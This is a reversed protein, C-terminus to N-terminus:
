SIKYLGHVGAHTSYNMNQVDMRNYSLCTLKKVERTTTDKYLIRDHWGIGAELGAPDYFCTSDIPKDNGSGRCSEKRHRLLKWTPLFNPGIDGLGELFGELPYKAKYAAFEDAKQLELIKTSTLIKKDLVDLMEHPLKDTERIEYNFNGFLFVHNPKATTAINNVYKELISSMCLDNTALTKARFSRYSDLDTIKSAPTGSPFDVAIFVLRGYTPHWVYAAIAGSLTGSSQSMCTHDNQGENSFYKALNKKKEEETIAIYVDNEAYISMRLASGSPMGVKETKLTKYPAGSSTEGVGSLVHRKLLRYNLDTMQTPLLDSHFYSDKSDEDQTSMVVLSPNSSSIAARIDNFFNPAICPKKATIFAKFGKRADNATSQNMTECLRLGAANWSFIMIKFDTATAM